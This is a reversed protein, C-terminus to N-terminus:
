FRYSLGFTVKNNNNVISFETEAFLCIGESRKQARLVVTNYMIPDPELHGDPIFMGGVRAGIYLPEIFSYMIGSKIDVSIDDVDTEIPGYVGMSAINIQLKNDVSNYIIGGTVGMRLGSDRVNALPCLGLEFGIGAFVNITFVALILLTVLLKKM